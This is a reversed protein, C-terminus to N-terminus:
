HPGKSFIQYSIDRVGAYLVELEKIAEKEEMAFSRNGKIKSLVAEVEGDLKDFEDKYGRNGTIIYDNGPMIAASIALQLDDMLVLNDMQVELSEVLVDSKKQFWFSTGGIAAFVLFAGATVLALRAKITFM